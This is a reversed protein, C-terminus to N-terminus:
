RAARATPPGAAGGSRLYGLLTRIVGRAIEPSEDLLAEFEGRPVRLLEADTVAEVTAARPAGDLLAMEGFTGGRVLESLTVGDRVVRLTGSAVVFLADGPDGQRVVAEGPAHVVVHAIEGVPYLEEGSLRTFLSSERLIMLKDLVGLMPDKSPLEKADFKRCKELWGDLAPPEGARARAAIAPDWELLAVTRLALAPPLVNELLELANGRDRETAAAGAQHRVLASRARAILERDGLVSALDLLRHGTEAIRQHVEHRLLGPAAHAYARTLTESYALTLELAGAIAAPDLARGTKVPVTALARAVANRARYGLDSFRALVRDCADPGLRALVRAARVTGTVQGDRAVATRISGAGRTTPLASVLTDIARPGALALARVAARVHQGAELHATLTSLAGQAEILVAARAAEAFVAADESGLARLVEHEARSERLEGLARLAAARRPSDAGLAAKRLQKVAPDRDIKALGVLAEAWLDAAAVSDPAGSRGRDLARDLRARDPAAGLSRAGALVERELADDDGPPVRELLEAGEGERAVRLAARVAAHRIEIPAGEALAPALDGLRFLRDGMMALTGEARALDGARVSAALMRSIESRLLAASSPSVDLTVRGEGLARALAATYAKKVGLLAAISLASVAALLVGLARPSPGAAGFLSLALGAFLAGLPASASKALLKARTRTQAPTPALLLDSVSGSISMRLMTESFSAATATAVGPVLALAPSVALLAAPRASLAARVGFRGVFRSTLFIQTFLVVAESVVNFTGLFGAIEDRGYSAKLSAMFAIDVITTGAAALFATAAYIRVVPVSRLDGFSEAMSAVFGPARAKAVDPEGGLSRAALLAPFATAALCLAGGGFLLARTGLAAAALRAAAGVAIAGVTAAAACLPLLRKAQRAHFCDMAANMAILPLLTPLLQLVVCIAYLLAKNGTDGLAGSALMSAATLILFGVDFRSGNARQSLAGYGLSVAVKAISTLVFFQSLQGVDFASVFLTRSAITALTSAGVALFAFALAPAVTPWEGDRVDLPRFAM